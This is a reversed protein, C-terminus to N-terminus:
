RCPNLEGGNITPIAKWIQVIEVAHLSGEHWTGDADQYPPSPLNVYRRQLKEVPSAETTGGGRYQEENRQAWYLRKIADGSGFDYFERALFKDHYGLTSYRESATQSNPLRPANACSALVLGIGFIILRM